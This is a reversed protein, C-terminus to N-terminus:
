LLSMKAFLKKFIGWFNIKEISENALIESEGVFNGNKTYIIKGVVSGKEVPAELIEPLETKIEINGIDSKNMISSFGSTIIECESKVGRTVKINQLKQPEDKYISFNAFGWDLM